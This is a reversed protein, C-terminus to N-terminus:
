RLKPYQFTQRWIIGTFLQNVRNYVILRVKGLKVVFYVNMCSIALILGKILQLIVCIRIYQKCWPTKHSTMFVCFWFLYCPMKEWFSLKVNISWLSRLYQGKQVGEEWFMECNSIILRQQYSASYLKKLFIFFFMDILWKSEELMLINWTFFHYIPNYLFWNM